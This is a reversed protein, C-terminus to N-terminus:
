DGFRIKTAITHLKFNRGHVLKYSDFSDFCSKMMFFGYRRRLNGDELFNLDIASNHQAIIHVEFIRGHITYSDFSDFCTKMMFIQTAEEFYCVKGNCAYV